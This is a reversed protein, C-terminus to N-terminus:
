GHGWGPCIAVSCIVGPPFEPLKLFIKRYSSQPLTFMRVRTLCVRSAQYEPTKISERLPPNDMDSNSTTTKEFIPTKQSNIAIQSNNHLISDSQLLSYDDNKCAETKNQLFFTNTRQIFFGKQYRRKEIHLGCSSILIALIALLFIEKKNM